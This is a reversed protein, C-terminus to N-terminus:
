KLGGLMRFKNDEIERWVKETYTRRDEKYKMYEAVSWIELKNGAGILLAAGKLGLLRRQRLPVVFRGQPDFEIGTEAEGYMIERLTDTGIDLADDSSLQANLSQWAERTYAVLCGKVGIGVSFPSGLAERKKKSVLVRGKEDITVEETGVLPEREAANLNEM